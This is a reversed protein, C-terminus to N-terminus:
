GEQRWAVRTGVVRFPCVGVQDAQKAGLRGDPGLAGENIGHSIKRHEARGIILFKGRLGARIASCDAYAFWGEISVAGRSPM